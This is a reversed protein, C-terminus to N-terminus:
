SSASGPDTEAPSRYSGLRGPATAEPLVYLCFHVPMAIFPIVIMAAAMALVAYEPARTHRILHTLHVGFLILELALTLVYLFALLLLLPLAISAEAEFARELLYGGAIIAFMTGLIVPSLLIWM